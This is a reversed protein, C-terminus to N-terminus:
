LEEEYIKVIEQSYRNVKNKEASIIAELDDVARTLNDNFIFYDYKEITKIEQMARAMRNEIQEITETGRTIIRNKLEKLSPPLVFVLIADPYKEKVKMAGVIEIELLVDKGKEICELVWKKPTGYYNGFVHVYELLSDTGILDEFDQKTIFNYNVGDIENERPNRTTSSISLLMEKNLEMFNKCITGKGAGSPGSVVVLLGKKKM